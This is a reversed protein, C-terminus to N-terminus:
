SKSELLSNRDPECATALRQSAAMNLSRIRAMADLSALIRVRDRQLPSDPEVGPRKAAKLPPKAAGVAADSREPSRGESVGGVGFRAVTELARRFDCGEIRMVFNFV